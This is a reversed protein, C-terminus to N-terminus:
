RPRRMWGFGIEAVVVPAIFCRIVVEPCACGNRSRLRQALDLGESERDVTEFRGRMAPRKCTIPATDVGFLIVVHDHGIHNVTGGTARAALHTM